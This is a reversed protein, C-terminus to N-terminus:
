KSQPYLTRKLNEAALKGKKRSVESDVYNAATDATTQLKLQHAYRRYVDALIDKLKGSEVQADWWDPDDVGYQKAAEMLVPGMDFSEPVRNNPDAKFATVVDRVNSATTDKEDPTEKFLTQYAAGETVDKNGMLSANKKAEKSTANKWDTVRANGYQTIFHDLQAPQMGLQKGLSMWYGTPDGSDAALQNFTLNGVESEQEQTLQSAAGTLKQLNGQGTLVDEVDVLGARGAAVLAATGDLQSGTGFLAKNILVREQRERERESMTYQHDKNARNNADREFGVRQGEYSLRTDERRNTNFENLFGQNTKLYDTFYPNNQFAQMAEIAKPDGKAARMATENIQDRQSRDLNYDGYQNQATIRDILKQQLGAETDRILGRDIQAGYQQKLADLEGSAQAAALEEPTRFQALRDLFAQTNNEKGNEWNARDTERYQAFVDTIKDLGTNVSNQAANLLRGAEVAGNGGQINRWTIPM